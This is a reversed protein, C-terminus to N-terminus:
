RRRCRQGCRSRRPVILPFSFCAEPWSQKQCGVGWPLVFWILPDDSLSVFSDHDEFLRYPDLNPLSPQLMQPRPICSHLAVLKIAHLHEENPGTELNYATPIPRETCSQSPPSRLCTSKFPLRTLAIITIFQSFISSTSFKQDQSSQTLKLPHLAFLLDVIILRSFTMSLAFSVVLSDLRAYKEFERRM